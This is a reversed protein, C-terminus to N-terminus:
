NSLPKVPRAEIYGRYGMPALQFRPAEEPAWAFGYLSPDYHGIAEMVEGIEEMFHEEEYPPGQFVMLKCPPLQIIEYGEPAEKSYSM